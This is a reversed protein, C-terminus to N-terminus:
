GSRRSVYCGELLRSNSPGAIASGSAPGRPRYRSPSGDPAPPWPTATIATSVARTTQTSPATRERRSRPPCSTSATVSVGPLRPHLHPHPRRPGRRRPRQRPHPRMPGRRRLHPRTPGRLWLRQRRRPRPRRRRPPRQRRLPRPRRRRPPREHLLPRPRRRRPPRPTPTPTDAGTPTPSPTNARTAVPTPAQAPTAVRAAAPTPRPTRASPAAGQARTPTATVANSRNLIPAPTSRRLPTTTATRPAVTARATAPPTSSDDSQMQVVARGVIGVALVALLLTWPGIRSRSRGPPSEPRAQRQAAGPERRASRPESGPTRGGTDARPTGARWVDYARRQEARSLVEFPANLRVM